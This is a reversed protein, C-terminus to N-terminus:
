AQGRCKAPFGLGILAFVIFWFIVNISLYFIMNDFMAAILFSTVVLICYIIDCKAFKINTIIKFIQAHMFLYPFLVMCGGDFLLQIYVNHAQNGEEASLPFFSRSYTQFSELGYGFFPKQEIWPWAAQWLYRRWTGSDLILIGSNAVDGRMASIFYDYSVPSSGSLADTVRDAVAPIFMALPPLLLLPILLLPKRLASYSLLFLFVTIYAARTGTFLLALVAAGILGWIAVGAVRNKVYGSLQAHFLFSIYLLCFFALINPHAFTSALREESMGLAVQGLGFMIPVVGSLAVVITLGTRGLAPGYILGLFAVASYTLFNFLMQVAEVPVPSYSAALASALLFPGWIVAMTLVSRQQTRDVLLAHGALAAAVLVMFINFLFGPSLSAGGVPLRIMGFLNDLSPRAIMLPIVVTGFPLTRKVSASIAM